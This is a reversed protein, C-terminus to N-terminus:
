KRHWSAGGDATTWTEGNSASVTGTQTDAFEIRVVNTELKQRSDIPVVETWQRGSDVSHYLKGSTGGVWVSTGVASLARFGSNQGVAVAQWTKGGDSSRQVTGESSLTWQLMPLLAGGAAGSVRKRQATQIDEKRLGVASGAIGSQLNAAAPEPAAAAQVEVTEAMAAPMLKLELSPFEENAIAIQKLETSQFGRAEAKVSYIGPTLVDFAFKGQSDSTVTESGIPGM